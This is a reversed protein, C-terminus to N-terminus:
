WGRAADRVMQQLMEFRIEGYNLAYRLKGDRYVWTTPVWELPQGLFKGVKEAGATQNPHDRALFNEQTGLEAAALKPAPDQRGHWVNIFIVKVAANDNVFKAWGDPRMEERCNSCWPAWFHVVTVQSGSVIEAVEKELAVSEALTKESVAGSLTSLLTLALFLYRM